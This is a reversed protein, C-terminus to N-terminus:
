QTHLKNRIKSITYLRSYTGLGVSSTMFYHKRAGPFIEFPMKYPFKLSTMRRETLANKESQPDFPIEFNLFIKRKRSNRLTTATRRCAGGHADRHVRAVGTPLSPAARLFAVPPHGLLQLSAEALWPLYVFMEIEERKQNKPRKWPCSEPVRKGARLVWKIRSTM